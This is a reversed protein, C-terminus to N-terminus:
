RSRRARSSRFSRRTIAACPRAVASRCASRGSTCHPAGATPHRASANRAQSPSRQRVRRRAQQGREVALRGFRVVREEPRLEHRRAWREMNRTRVAPKASRVKTHGARRLRVREDSAQLLNSACRCRRRRSEGRTRPSRSRRASDPCLGSSRQARSSTSAPGCTSRSGPTSRTANVASGASTPWRTRSSMGESRRCAGAARVTLTGDDREDRGAEERRHPHAHECPRSKPTSSRTPASGTTTTFAFKALVTHGPSDASPLHKMSPMRAIRAPADDADDRVRMGDAHDLLRGHLEVDRERLFANLPLTAVGRVISIRAAPRVRPLQRPAPPCCSSCWSDGCRCAVMPRRRQCVLERRLQTRPPEAGREEGRGAQERQEDGGDADVARDGVGNLWRVCSIPTRMASPACPELM